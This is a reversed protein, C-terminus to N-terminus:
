RHGLKVGISNQSYFVSFNFKSITSQSRISEPNECLDTDLPKSSSQTSSVWNNEKTNGSIKNNM